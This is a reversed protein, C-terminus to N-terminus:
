NKWDESGNNDWAAIQQDKSMLSLPSKGQTKTQGSNHNAHHSANSGQNNSHRGGVPGHLKLRDAAFSSIDKDVALKDKLKTLLGEHFVRHAETLWVGM